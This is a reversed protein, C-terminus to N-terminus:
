EDDRGLFRYGQGRVTKIFKPKKTDDGLKNRLRSILIDISRGFVEVEDGQLHAILEDRSIIKHNNSILFELAMFEMSTLELKEENLYAEMSSPELRVGALEKPSAPSVQGGRARRIISEVRALLERPEFPKVLYDDAGLELGVIRDTTETRASLFLIPINSFKRLAKCVEFGDMGPMMIDLILLDFEREKILEIGKEPVSEYCVDHNYKVLYESLISGLRLDDDIIILKACSM